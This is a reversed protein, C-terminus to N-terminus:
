IWFGELWVGAEHLVDLSFEVWEFEEVSSNREAVVEGVGEDESDETEVVAQPPAFCAGTCGAMGEGWADLEASFCLDEREILAM